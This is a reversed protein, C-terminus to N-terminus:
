KMGTCIGVLLILGGTGYYMPQSLDMLYGVYTMAGAILLCVTFKGLSM